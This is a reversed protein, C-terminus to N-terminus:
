ATTEDSPRPNKREVVYRSATVTMKRATATPASANRADLRRPRRGNQVPTSAALPTTAPVNQSSEAVIVYAPTPSSTNAEAQFTMGLRAFMQEHRGAPAPEVFHLCSFLSAIAV